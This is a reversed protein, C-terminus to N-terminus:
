SRAVIFVLAAVVLWHVANVEVITSWWLIPLLIIPCRRLLCVWPGEVLSEMLVVLLAAWCAMTTTPASARVYDFRWVIHIM